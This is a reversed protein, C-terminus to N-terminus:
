GSEPGLPHLPETRLKRPDVDKEQLRREEELRTQEPDLPIKIRFERLGPPRILKVVDPSDFIRQRTQEWLRGSLLSPNRKFEPLLTRYEEVDSQIQGTVVSFYAGADKIMQGARGEAEEMLLRDLEAQLQEVSQGPTGGAEIGDLVAVLRPYSVGASESLIKTREQEVERIRRQKSNEARQTNDFDERVQLPPTPEFVEVSTVVVGSGMQSLRSNVRRRVESAADDVRTRVVEEATMESAVQIGATEVLTTILREAAEVKDGMMHSAFQDVSDIKYTVKWQVHVLGADATILAGDRAPNLGQHPGRSLFALPKGVEDDDRKFTHSAIMLDNSKKTPLPVVEDIPFPFAWVLGAEHVVRHLRGLRLILAEEHGGITRVNSFLYLVVLILMIGKLIRFSTRLADSLSQNAADLPQEVVDGEDHSHGGHGPSHHHSHDHAM